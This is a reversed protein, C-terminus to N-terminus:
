LGGRGEVAKSESKGKGSIRVVREAAGRELELRGGVALMDECSNGSKVM